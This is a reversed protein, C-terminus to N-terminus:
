YSFNGWKPKLRFFTHMPFFFDLKLNSFHPYKPEFEMHTIPTKKSNQSNQNLNRIALWRNKQFNPNKREFVLHTILNKKM